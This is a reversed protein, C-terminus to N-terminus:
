CGRIASMPGADVVYADPPINGLLDLLARNTKPEHTLIRQSFDSVWKDSNDVHFEFNNLPSQVKHNM